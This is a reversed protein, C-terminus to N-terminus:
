IASRRTGPNSGATEFPSKTESLAFGALIGLANLSALFTSFGYPWVTKKKPANALSFIFCVTLAIKLVDLAKEITEFDGWRSPLTLILGLGFVVNVTTLSWAYYGAFPPFEIEPTKAKQTEGITSTKEQAGDKSIWEGCHRCKKAQAQIEGLCYPCQTLGEATAM